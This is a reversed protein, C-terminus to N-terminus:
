HLSGGLGDSARSALGEYEERTDVDEFPYEGGSALDECAISASQHGDVLANLGEEAPLAFVHQVLPWSFLVPHGRRGGITPVVITGASQTAHRDILRDIIPSSLRPMDAPAVLFADTDTPQYQNQIYRLAAQVSAKMDVPAVEPVVVEVKFTSSQLKFRNVAEVLPQDGPRVVVVIRDVRSRQWAMLTHEILPRGSVPLLLKPRGMRSSSGAAPVLAFFQASM